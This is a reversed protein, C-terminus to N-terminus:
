RDDERPFGPVGSTRGFTMPDDLPDMSTPQEDSQPTAEVVPDPAALTVYVDGVRLDRVGARRLDNGHRILCSVVREIDM